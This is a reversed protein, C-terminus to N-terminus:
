GGGAITYVQMARPEGTAAEIEWHSEGAPVGIVHSDLREAPTVAVGDRAVRVLTMPCTVPLANAVVLVGPGRATFSVRVPTPAGCARRWPYDDGSTLALPQVPAHVADARGLAFAGVREASTGPPLAGAHVLFWPTGAGEVGGLVVRSAVGCTLRAPVNRLMDVVGALEGFARVEGAACLRRGVRDLDFPTLTALAVYGRPVGRALDTAASLAVPVRVEGGIARLVWAGSTAVSIALALAAPVLRLPVGARVRPPLMAASFALWAAFPVWAAYLM